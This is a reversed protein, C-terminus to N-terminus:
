HCQSVLWVRDFRGDQLDDQHIFWYLAGADGWTMNGVEFLQLLLRWDEPQGHDLAHVCDQEMADAQIPSPYGGIQVPPQIDSCFEGYCEEWPDGDFSILGRDLSPYSRSELLEVHVKKYVRPKILRKWLGFFSTVECEPLDSEKFPRKGQQHLVVAHGRDKPSYGWHRNDYFFLLYGTDIPSLNLQSCNLQGIFHLPYGNKLPWTFGNDVSPLGGFYCDTEVETPLGILCPQSVAQISSLYPELEHKKLEAEHM